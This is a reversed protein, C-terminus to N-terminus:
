DGFLRRGRTRAAEIADPLPPTGDATWLAVTALLTAAQVAVYPTPDLTVISALYEAFYHDFGAGLSVHGDPPASGLPWLLRDAVLAGSRVSAPLLDGLLHSAYGVAFGDAAASRDANRSLAVVGVLLPAAVFVSHGLASGTAFVDFEWALPKDIVDPLVAATAMAVTSTAEPSEGHRVRTYASYLLYGFAVHEWPWM